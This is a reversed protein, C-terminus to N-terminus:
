LIRFYNLSLKCFQLLFLLSSYEFEYKGEYGHCCSPLDMWSDDSILGIVDDSLDLDDGYFSISPLCDEWSEEVLSLDNLNEM